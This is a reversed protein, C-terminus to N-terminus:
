LSFLAERYRMMLLGDTWSQFPTVQKNDLHERCLWEIYHGKATDCLPYGGGIRPNIEIISVEDSAHDVFAQINIIGNAGPLKQAVQACHEILKPARHTKAQVVEGSETAIRQHPILCIVEGQKSLYVNTTYEIGKAKEQLIWDSPVTSLDEAQHALIVGTSSSGHEPKAIIPFALQGDFESKLCTPPTPAHISKLFSYTDRKRICLNLTKENSLSVATGSKALEPIAESLSLLESHRTPIVLGINANKCLNALENAWDPHEHNPLLTFHDAISKCPVQDSTDSIHLTAGRRHAAAKAIRAIAVKSGGSLLLINAPAATPEPM